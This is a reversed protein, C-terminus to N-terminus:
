GYGQAERGFPAMNAKVKNREIAEQKLKEKRERLKELNKEAVESITTNLLRSITNICRFVQDVQYNDTKWGEQKECLIESTYGFLNIIQICLVEDTFGFEINLKSEEVFAALYWLCDGAEFIMKERRDPTIEGKDDRLARMYEGLLEGSEAALGMAYYLPRNEIASDDYCGVNLAKDQYESFNFDNM